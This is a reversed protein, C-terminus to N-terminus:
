SQDLKKRASIFLSVSLLVFLIVGLIPNENFHHMFHAGFAFINPNWPLHLAHAM